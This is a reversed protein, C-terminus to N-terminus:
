LVRRDTCFWKCSGFARFNHAPLFCVQHCHSSCDERYKIEKAEIIYQYLSIKVILSYYQNRGEKLNGTLGIGSSFYRQAVLLLFFECFLYPELFIIMHPWASHVQLAEGFNELSVMRHLPLFKCFKKFPPVKTWIPAWNVGQFLWTLSNAFIKTHPTFPKLQTTTCLIKKVAVNPYWLSGDVETDISAKLKTLM